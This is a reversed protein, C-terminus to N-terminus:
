RQSVVDNNRQDSAAYNQDPLYLIVRDYQQKEINWFKM